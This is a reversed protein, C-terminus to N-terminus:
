SLLASGTDRSPNRRGNGLSHSRHQRYRIRTRLLYFKYETLYMYGHKFARLCFICPGSWRFTNGVKEDIPISQIRASDYRWPEFTGMMM